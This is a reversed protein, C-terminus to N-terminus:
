RGKMEKLAEVYVAGAVGAVCVSLGAAGFYAPKFLGKELMRM